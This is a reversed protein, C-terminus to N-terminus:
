NFLKVILFLLVFGFVDFLVKKVFKLKFVLGVVVEVEEVIGCGFVDGIVM